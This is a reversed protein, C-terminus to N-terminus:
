HDSEIYIRAIGIATSGVATNATGNSMEVQPAMFATSVPLTSATNGEYSVGNVIDDLRYYVTTDNPKAFMYFDYSNGAAFANSLAIPTKTTTAANRTVFNFTTASDTTDHWLGLSNNQVTDSTVVETATASLGTFIRITAAPYSDLTFRTSFFFGGLGAANGQWFQFADAANARIGMAQNTNTVLNQQRTRHMQNTIAPATSTPTPTNVTGGNSGKAWLTGFGGTVTTGSTPNFMITNNGFLAPQLPSDLGSPGKIKLLMRGSVRKAYVALNDTAPAAPDSPNGGSTYGALNLGGSQVNLGTNWGTGIYMGTQTGSGPSTPGEIKIGYETVGTVAGTGNAVIRLGSWTGGSTGGPTIDIRAGASEVAAAGGIYNISLGNIGAATVAQGANSISLQDVSPVASASIRFNSGAAENFVVAGSNGPNLNINGSGSSLTLASTSVANGVSVTQTGASSDAINISTNQNIAGVSGLNIIKNAVNNVGIDIGGSAATQLVITSAAGGGQITTIDTTKATSGITVLQTNTGDSTDAIQVTSAATAAGVTGLDVAGSFTANAGTFTTTAAIGITASTTINGQVSLSATGAGSDTITLTSASASNLDIKLATGVKQLTTTNAGLVITGNGSDLTLARTAGVSNLTVSAENAVPGTIQLISTGNASQVNFIDANPSAASTQKVIAGTINTSPQFTQTGTWTENQSLQGLSAIGVGGVKDSNIAYPVSVMQVRPTMYGAADANFRIALYLAPNVNFDPLATVSGLNTQFVGSTVVVSKTLEHWKDHVGDSPTGLSPDDYLVFDFNYTGDTVNTGNSNVVKGQFNILAPNTAYAVHGKLLMGAGLLVASVLLLKRITSGKIVSNFLSL